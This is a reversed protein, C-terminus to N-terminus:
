LWIRLTERRQGCKRGCTHSSSMCALPPRHVLQFRHSWKKKALLMPESLYSPSLRPALPIFLTCKSILSVVSWLERWKSVPQFHAAFLIHYTAISSRYPRGSDNQWCKDAPGITQWQRQCVVCLSCQDWQARSVSPTPRNTLTSSSCRRHYTTRHHIHHHASLALTDEKALPCLHQTPSSKSDTLWQHDGALGIDSGDGSSRCHSDEAGVNAEAASSTRCSDGLRCIYWRSPEVNTHWEITLPWQNTPETRTPM